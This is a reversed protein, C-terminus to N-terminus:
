AGISSTAARLRSRLASRVAAPHNSSEAATRVANATDGSEKDAAAASKSTVGLIREAHNSPLFPSLHHPIRQRNPRM